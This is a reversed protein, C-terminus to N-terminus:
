VIEFEYVVPEVPVKEWSRSYVGSFTQIGRKTGKLIFTRVRPCGTYNKPCSSSLVEDIIKLGPSTEVKWRYGTSPNEDLHIVFPQGVNYTEM